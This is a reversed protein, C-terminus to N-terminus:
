LLSLPFFLSLYIVVRGYHSVRKLSTDMANAKKKRRDNENKTGSLMCIDVTVGWIIGGSNNGNKM